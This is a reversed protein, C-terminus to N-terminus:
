CDCEQCSCHDKCHTCKKEEHCTRQEETSTTVQKKEESAESKSQGYSVNLASFLLASGLVKTLHRKM